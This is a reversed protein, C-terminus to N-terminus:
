ILFRRGDGEWREKKLQEKEREREREVGERERKQQLPPPSLKFESRLREQGATERSDSGRTWSVMVERCSFHTNDVM